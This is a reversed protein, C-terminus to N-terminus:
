YKVSCGYPKSEKVKIEEGKLASNLALKVLPRASKLDAKSTSAITDIAGDYLVEGKKSLVFMHPTVKAGFAKGVSGDKDLLIYTAKSKYRVKDELAKDPTSYGQKGKASSIVSAWVVGKETFDGQLKQMQGSDYHKRVFPCGHNLWELVVFKGKLQSLSVEKGSAAALKFEPAKSGVTLVAQAYFCVLFFLAGTRIM